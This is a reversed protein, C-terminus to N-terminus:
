ILIYTCIHAHAHAHAHPHALAHAHAHTYTYTDLCVYKLYYINQECLFTQYKNVEAPLDALLPATAGAGGLRCM